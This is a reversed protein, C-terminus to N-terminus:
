WKINNVAEISSASDIQDKVSGKKNYLFIGHFIMEKRLAQIQELTAPAKQSEYGSYVTSTISFDEMYEILGEVNQLDNNKGGRRYDVDIALAESFFHGDTIEKEFCDDVYNKREEKAVGLRNDVIQGDEYLCSSVPLAIGKDDKPWTAPNYRVESNDELVLLTDLRLRIKM